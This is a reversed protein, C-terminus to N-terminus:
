LLKTVRKESLRMEQEALCRVLAARTAVCLKEFVSSMHHKVTSESVGLTDAITANNKGHRMCEVIQRERETLSALKAVFVDEHEDKSLVRYLVEHMTPVIRQLLARHAEGLRDPIRHFSFYSAVCRADDFCAHAATNRLDNARFQALWDAPLDPWPDDLEFLQPERTALWRRLVPTEIGGAKNRIAYLYDIPYDVEVICDLAVGGAHLHGFGCALAAHPLIPRIVDRTWQKLDRPSAVGEASALLQQDIPSVQM